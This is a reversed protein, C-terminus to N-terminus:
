RRRDVDLMRQYDNHADVLISGIAIASGAIGAATNAQREHIVPPIADEADKKDQAVQRWYAYMYDREDKALSMWGEENGRKTLAEARENCQPVELKKQWFKFNM